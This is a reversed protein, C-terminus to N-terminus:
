ECYKSNDQACLEVFLFPQMISWSQRPCHDIITGHLATSESAASRRRLTRWTHVTSSFMKWGRCVKLGYISGFQQQISSSMLSPTTSCSDTMLRCSMTAPLLSRISTHYVEQGCSCMLLYWLWDATMFVCCVVLFQM